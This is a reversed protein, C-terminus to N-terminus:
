AHFSEPEAPKWFWLAGGNGGGAGVVFGDPTSPSAGPPARSRPRRSTAAEAQRDKWDFAVVLPNGVGAFANRVNTIGRLGAAQRAADFAM